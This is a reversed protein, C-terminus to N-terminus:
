SFRRGKEWKVTEKQKLEWMARSSDMRDPNGDRASHADGVGVEAGFLAAALSEPKFPSLFTTAMWEPLINTKDSVRVSLM